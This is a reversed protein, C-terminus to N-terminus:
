RSSNPILTEPAEAKVYAKREEEEQLHVDQASLAWGRCRLTKYGQQFPQVQLVEVHLVQLGQVQLQEQFGAKTLSGFYNSYYKISYYCISVQTRGEGKKKKKKKRLYIFIKKFFCFDFQM